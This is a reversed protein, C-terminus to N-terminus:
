TLVEPSVSTGPSKTPPVPSLFATVQPKALASKRAPCAYLLRTIALPKLSNARLALSDRCCAVQVLASHKGRALSSDRSIQKRKTPRLLDLRTRNKANAWGHWLCKLEVQICAAATGMMQPFTDVGDLEGDVSSLCQQHKM